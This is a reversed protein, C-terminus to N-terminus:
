SGAIGNLWMFSQLFAKFDKLEPKEHSFPLVLVSKMPNKYSNFSNPIYLAFQFHYLLFISNSPQFEHADKFQVPIFSMLGQLVDSFIFSMKTPNLAVM